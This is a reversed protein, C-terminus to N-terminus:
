PQAAPTEADDDAAAEDDDEYPEYFVELQKGPESAQATPDPNVPEIASDATAPDASAPDADSREEAPAPLVMELGDSESSDFPSFLGALKALFGTDSDQVPAAAEAAALAGSSSIESVMVPRKQAELLARADQAQLELGALEYCRVLLQLARYSAPTGPYQGIIQEARKAAAVYAGRRVYFDVVHLEHAAIRNRIFVMREYSDGAYPSDPFRQILLSFDDFARRQSTVDSKTEDVPLIALGGEERHYNVLGKLYYIYDVEPHRPHERLFRDAASLALDPEFNRYLSYIRELEGQTAFPSFPHQTSLRDYSEIASTFDSSDLAVRARRYLQEASLAALRAEERRKALPNDSESFVSPRDAETRESRERDTEDGEKKPSSSCATVSVALIAVLLSLNKM